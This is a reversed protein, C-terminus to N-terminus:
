QQPGPEGPPPGGPGRGPPGDDGPPGGRGPGGPRRGGPGRGMRQRLEKLQQKQEDTLLKELKEDVEKQLAAVQQKQDDTLKLEEQLFRPMIQGPQPPGFGGPGGPRGMRPFDFRRQGGNGGEDAVLKTAWAVLEEKTVVGDKNADARDFMRLMRRDTVEDRTLKGDKNKDFEMMRAVLAEVAAKNGAGDKPASRPANGPENPAQATAVTAPVGIGVMVLMLRLANSMFNEKL